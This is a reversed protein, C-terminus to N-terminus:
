LIILLHFDVQLSHWKIKPFGLHLVSLNFFDQKESFHCMFGYNLIERYVVMFVAEIISSHM